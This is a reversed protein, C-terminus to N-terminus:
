ISNKCLIGPHLLLLAVIVKSKIVTEPDFSKPGALVVEVHLKSSAVLNLKPM